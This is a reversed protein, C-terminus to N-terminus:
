EWHGGSDTGHELARQWGTEPKWVSWAGTQTETGVPLGFCLGISLLRGRLLLLLVQLRLVGFHPDHVEVELLQDDQWSLDIEVFPKGAVTHTRCM